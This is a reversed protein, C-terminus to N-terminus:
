AWASVAHSVRQGLQAVCVRGIGRHLAQELRLGWLTPKGRRGEGDLDVPALVGAALALGDEIDAAVVANVHGRQAVLGLQGAEARAPHAHDLHLALIVRRDATRAARLRVHDHARLGGPQALDALRIELQDEGVM